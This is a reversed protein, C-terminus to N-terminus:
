EATAPANLKEPHEILDDLHDSKVFIRGGIRSVPIRGAEVHEQWKQKGINGLRFMCEKRPVLRRPQM